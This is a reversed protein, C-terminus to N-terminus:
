YIGFGRLRDEISAITATNSALAAEIRAESRSGPRARGMRLNIRERQSRAADLDAQLANPDLARRNQQEMVARRGRDPRRGGPGTEGYELYCRCRPHATPGQKPGVATVFPEDFRAVQGHLPECIPCVKADAVTRWTKNVEEAQVAGEAVARDWFAREGQTIADQVETEAITRGRQLLLRDRYRNVEQDIVRRVQPTLAEPVPVLRRTVGRRFNEVAEFQRPTLGALNGIRRATEVPSIQDTVGLQLIARIGRETTQTIGVAAAAAHREIHAVAAETALGIPVGDLVPPAFRFGIEVGEELAAELNEGIAAAIHAELNNPADANVIVRTDGSVVVAEADAVDIGDRFSVLIDALDDELAAAVRERAERNARREARSAKSIAVFGEPVFLGGRRVYRRRPRGAPRFCLRKPM